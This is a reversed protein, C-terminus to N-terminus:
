LTESTSAQLQRYFCTTNGTHCAPGAPEVEVLITDCDCDTYINVVRQVNGSTEGKNWLQQRSRSWFWTTGTEFTKKISETNMWAVMLVQHTQYDQVVAPILGKSDFKLHDPNVTQQM